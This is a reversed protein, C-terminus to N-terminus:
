MCEPKPIRTNHRDITYPPDCASAGQSPAPTEIRASVSPQTSPRPPVVWQRSDRGVLTGADVADSTSPAPTPSEFASGRQASFIAATNISTRIAQPRPEVTSSGGFHGVIALVIAVAGGALAGVAIPMRLSRLPGLRGHEGAGPEGGQGTSARVPSAGGAPQRAGTSAPRDARAIVAGLAARAARAEPFRRRPNREVCRLFWEDFGAVLKQECAYDHARDSAPEIPDTRIEGLLKHANLPGNGSRWYHKGTMLRFAILGLAWVDTAPTIESSEVTQEPAMWFPTGLAETKSASTESVLKALGFDLVKVMFPVGERRPAALFVNEPKLDRHVVGVAHAAGLAHCMQGFVEDVEGWSLTGRKRLYSALDRGQLLEMALWPVGTPEDVGAAVVQVVHDSDIKSGLRAEQAFRQKMRDNTVLAPNMLKLARLYGTSQQEVEYIYGMGGQKLPRVIRFDGAFVTGAELGALGAMPPTDRAGGGPNLLM